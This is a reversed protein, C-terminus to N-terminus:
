HNIITSHEGAGHRFGAADIGIFNDPKKPRTTTDSAMFILFAVIIALFGPIIFHDAKISYKM